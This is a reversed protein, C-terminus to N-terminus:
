MYEKLDDLPENFDSPLKLNQGELQGLIRKTRATKEAETKEELFTVIVQQKKQQPPIKSLIIKGNEYTGPISLNM